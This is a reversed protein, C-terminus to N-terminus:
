NVTKFYIIFLIENNLLRGIQLILFVTKKVLLLFTCIIIVIFVPPLITIKDNEFSNHKM